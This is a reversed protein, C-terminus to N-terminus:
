SSAHAVCLLSDHASFHSLAESVDGCTAQQRRATLEVKQTETGEVCKERLVKKTGQSDLVRTFCNLHQYGM